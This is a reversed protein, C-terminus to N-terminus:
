TDRRVMGLVVALGLVSRPAYANRWLGGHNAGQWFLEVPHGLPTAPNALAAPNRLDHVLLAAMLVNSTAPEFMEIGFRHAGAYAAALTRTRLVSRTRTAPAVNLSVLRGNVREHVARWRQIRKALAYNPGQQPVLSDNLGVQRGDPLTLLETYNRRLLRGGSGLRGMRRLLTREHYRREADDVADQPVAFVDTPTALFALSVDDRLRTLAVTLADVAVTARVHAAGEAYAYNGLTFPGDVTSLWALLEPTRTLLDAGAAAAIEDDPASSPLWRNVPVTMRGRSGRVLEILRRWIDYRPLDVAVVHAGWRVLPELPGMQAGAGLVVVTLDRLDLWQPNAVVARVAAAFSEETTGAAVWGDLRRDLDAGTLVAGQYPVSLQQDTMPLGGTVVASHLAPARGAGAELGAAMAEALPLDRDGTRFVFRRHVSALGDASISGAPRGGTVALRTLRRYPDLYHGRWDRDALVQAAFEPDAARVADAIVARGTAMTSRRGDVIPFLVGGAPESGNEGDDRILDPTSQLDDVRGHHVARGPDPPLV